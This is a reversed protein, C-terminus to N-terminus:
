KRRVYIRLPEDNFAMEMREEENQEDRLFRVVVNHASEPQHDWTVKITVRPNMKDDADEKVLEWSGPYQWADADEPLDGEFHLGAAGEATFRMHCNLSEGTSEDFTWEGCLLTTATQASLMSPATFVSSMAVLTVVVPGLHRPLKWETMNSTTQENLHFPLHLRNQSM